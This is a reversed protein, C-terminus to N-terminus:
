RVLKPLLTRSICKEELELVLVLALWVRSKDVRGGPLDEGGDKRLLKFQGVYRNAAKAAQGIEQRREDRGNAQPNEPVRHPETQANEDIHAYHNRQCDGDEDGGRGDGAPELPEEM